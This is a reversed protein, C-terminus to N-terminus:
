ECKHQSMVTPDLITPVADDKLKLRESFWQAKNQLHIRLLIFHDFSLTRVSVTQIKMLFLTSESKGLTPILLFAICLSNKWLKANYLM